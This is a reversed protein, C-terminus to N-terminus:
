DKKVAEKRTIKHKWVFVTWSFLVYIILAALYYFITTRLLDPACGACKSVHFSGSAIRVIFLILMFLVLFMAYHKKEHM